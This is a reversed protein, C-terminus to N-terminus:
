CHLSFRHYQEWYTEGSYKRAQANEAICGNRVKLDRHSVKQEKLYVLGEVIQLAYSTIEEQTWWTSSSEKKEKLMEKLSGDLLHMLIYLNSGIEFYGIMQLINSHQLGRLASFETQFSHFGDVNQKSFEKAAFLGGNSKDLCKYVTGFAGKGVIQSLVYNSEDLKSEIMEVGLLFILGKSLIM